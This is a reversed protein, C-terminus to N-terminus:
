KGGVTLSSVRIMPEGVNVPISGSLSGCMGQAMKMDKGVRDIRMLVEGGKGILSAGRVPRVIRGDQVWYGEQVAFNFEGTAPNVSGGGMRRAYLGTGMTAIMENEDDHGAAIYTNRMRSTPAWAYSERRGSGTPAMNMRRGGLKDIMYNTLIGDKILVLKTTPMGEDDIHLSGWEGPITGDDIATVCSAAIQQGLKGSFESIGYAVSTAELSHGCAEHFIVGGFGNDIVVPFVGAPCSEAHLMTIATTAADTAAKEPDVVSDFLEFGMSAGPNESGVQNEHGDSAVAGVSLRTRVRRDQVFVGETNCILVDQVHDLYECNVQTIEASVKRAAADAARLKEAKRAAPVDGPMLRIEDPRAASWGSFGVPKAEGQGRVAAAAQGACTLLGERSVDNTYVYIARLGDFVRIGAGHIRGTRVSEIRSSRLTMNHNVRDEVFIEAFDGGTKVAENLVDAALNRDLM